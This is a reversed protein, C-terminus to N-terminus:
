IQPCSGGGRRIASYAGSPSASWAAIPPTANPWGHLRVLLELIGGDVEVMATM